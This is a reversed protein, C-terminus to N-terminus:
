KSFTYYYEHDFKIVAFYRGDGCSSIMSKLKDAIENDRVTVGYPVEVEFIVNTGATGGVMRFDHMNLGTDIDKLEEEVKRKMELVEKDDTVIPDIHITTYCRLKEYLENELTDIQEHISRLNGDAEVEAHLSVMKRGPGYDHVILDHLGHVASYSLVCEKIDDIFKKDPAHGILLDATDKLSQMGTYFIFIGVIIGAYGDLSLNTYKGLIASILVASTSICDSLSDIAAAKLASSDIKKGLMRNFCFMYLKVAISIILVIIVATDTEATQKESIKKLSSSIIEIGMVLTASSVLMASIYEIRGHGFPHEKDPSHSSIRFGLLTIVSSLADSLNNVADATVSVLGSIIGTILKVAFLLVNLFIGFAGALIGYSERVRLDETKEYDKIFIKALLKIM